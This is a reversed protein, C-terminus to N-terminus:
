HPRGDTPNRASYQAILWTEFYDAVSRDVHAEFADEGTCHLVVEIQGLRTRSYQGPLASSVVVPAGIDSALVVRTQPGHISFSTFADSVDTLRILVRGTDEQLRRRVDHVSYDFLLWETPGISYVRPGTTPSLHGEQGGLLRGVLRDPPEKVAGHVQLLSVRAPPLRMVILESDKM